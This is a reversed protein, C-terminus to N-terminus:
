RMERTGGRRCFNKQSGTGLRTWGDLGARTANRHSMGVVCGLVFRERRQARRSCSVNRRARAHKPTQTCRDRHIIARVLTRSPIRFACASTSSRALGDLANTILIHQQQRHRHRRRVARVRAPEERPNSTFPPQTASCLSLLFRSLFLFPRSAYTHKIPQPFRGHRDRRTPGVFFLIGKRRVHSPARVGSLRWDSNM